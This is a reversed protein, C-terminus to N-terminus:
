LSLVVKLVISPLNGLWEIVDVKTDWLIIVNYNDSKEFQKKQTLNKLEGIALLCFINRIIGLHLYM